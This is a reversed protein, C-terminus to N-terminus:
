SDYDTIVIEDNNNYFKLRISGDQRKFLECNYEGYVHTASTFDLESGNSGHVGDQITNLQFAEAVSTSDSTIIYSVSNKITNKTFYNGITNNTFENEITNLTFENGITNGFFSTGMKNYLCNDGFINGNMEWDVANDIFNIGFENTTCSHIRNSEFHDGVINNIFRYISNQSYNHNITNFVFIDLVNGVFYNGIINEYGSFINNNTCRYGFENDTFNNGITNEKFYDGIVNDAFNMGITNYQFNNGIENSNFIEGVTNTQFDDGIINSYFYTGIENTQFNGGVTNTQFYTGITNEKFYHEIVNDAFNVGITNYQFDDGISNYQFFIGTTNHQFDDGITNEQFYIEITNEQFEDGITNNQFNDGVKNYPFFDGVKNNQFYTGIINYHFYVGITNEYFVDGITNHQFNDGVTNYCFSFGCNNFVNLGYFSNNCCIQDFSNNTVQTWGYSSILNFVNNQLISRTLYSYDANDKFLKFHNSFVELDYQSEGDPCNFTFVDVYDEPDSVGDSISTLGAYVYMDWGLPADDLAWRRFKVNRFDYGLSNDNKTDHRFYIVGKFGLLIVEDEAAFCLDKLWNDPNWDYYIIDQPYTESKAEINLTNISLATVVLPEIQGLGIEPEMSTSDIYLDSGDLIYYITQYDTIRYSKGPILSSTNILNILDEYLIDENNCIDNLENIAGMINKAITNLQTTYGGMGGGLIGGNMINLFITETQLKRTLITEISIDEENAVYWVIIKGDGDGVFNNLSNVIVKDNVGPENISLSANTYGDYLDDAMYSPVFLENLGEDYVMVLPDNTGYNAVDEPLTFQSPSDIPVFIAKLFNPVPGWFTSTGDTTLYLGQNGNQDPLAEFNSISNDVYEKVASQTPYLVDSSTSDGLTEDDSKNSVDEPIYGLGVNLIDWNTSTQGPNDTLARVSDGVNVPIGGLNGGVSIYWIDGKVIIGGPGSGNTNPYTGGSANWNGRDDLLGLEISDVYEKVARQTPYLESSSTSDGLTEDDSKNTIVEALGLKIREDETFFLNITGEFLDDSTKGSFYLNILGEPIQDTTTGVPLGGSSGSGGLPM